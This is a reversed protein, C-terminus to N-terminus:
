PAQSMKTPLPILMPVRRRYDEYENSYLRVLDREELHIGILIYVSLGGTFLLHSATMRPTAWLALLTGVMLPHRVWRYPGPTQFPLPVYPKGQAYLHVQRLGLLESAGIRAAAWVILGAGILGISGIGAVTLPQDIHWIEVPIPRWAGIVLLLVVSSLLVYTSREVVVPVQRTWWEKFKPRAMGSHQLAFLALLLLDIAIAEAMGGEDGEDISWSVLRDSLFGALYLATGAFFLVCAWGYVVALVRSM